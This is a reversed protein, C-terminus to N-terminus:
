TEIIARPHYAEFSLHAANRAAVRFKEAAATEEMLLRGLELAEQDEESLMPDVASFISESHNSKHRSKCTPTFLRDQPYRMAGDTELRTAAERRGHHRENRENRSIRWLSFLFVGFFTWSFVMEEMTGAVIIVEEEAEAGIVEVTEGVGELEKTSERVVELVETEVTTGVSLVESEVPAVADSVEKAVTAAERDISKVAGELKNEVAHVDSRVADETEVVWQHEANALSVADSHLTETVSGVGAGAPSVVSPNLGAPPSVAVHDPALWPHDDALTAFDAPPPPAAGLTNAGGGTGLGLVRGAEGPPAGPGLHLTKGDQVGYDEQEMSAHAQFTTMQSRAQLLNSEEVAPRKSSLLM